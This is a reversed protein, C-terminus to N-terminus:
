GSCMHEAEGEVALWTEGNELRRHPAVLPRGCLRGPRSALELQRWQRPIRDVPEFDGPKWSKDFWPQLPAYFRIM